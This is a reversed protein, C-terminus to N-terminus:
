PHPEKTPRLHPDRDLARTLLWDARQDPTLGPPPTETPDPAFPNPRTTRHTALM